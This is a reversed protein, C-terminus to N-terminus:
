IYVTSKTSKLLLLAEASTTGDTCTFSFTGSVASTSASTVVISGSKAIKISTTSTLYEAYNSLMTSDFAFTGTGTFNSIYLAFYPFVASTSSGSWGQVTLITGVQTAVCNNGSFATGGVSAGMSYSPSSSKKSCGTFAALGMMVVASFIVIKKM